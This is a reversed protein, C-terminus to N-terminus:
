RAKFFSALYEVGDEFVYNPISEIVGTPLKSITHLLHANYDDLQSLTPESGLKKRADRMQGFTPAALTMSEYDKGGVNITNPFEFTKELPPLEFAEDKKRAM